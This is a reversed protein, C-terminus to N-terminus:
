YYREEMLEPEHDPNKNKKLDKIQRELSQIHELWESQRDCEEILGQSLQKTKKFVYGLEL